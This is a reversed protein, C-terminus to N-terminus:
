QVECFARMMLAEQDPSKLFKAISSVMLAAPSRPARKTAEGPLPKPLFM